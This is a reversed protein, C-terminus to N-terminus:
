QEVVSGGRDDEAEGGPLGEAVVAATFGVDSGDDVRDAGRV